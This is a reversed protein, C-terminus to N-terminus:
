RLADTTPGAKAQAAQARRAPVPCSPSRGARRASQEAVAACFADLNETSVDPAMGGGCSFIVRRCDDISAMREAVCRRVEDCTGGALVDRPPIDGLLTVSEGVLRRMDALSHKFSFNFLNIGIEALYPASVLGPADNHFAKVSVDMAQFVQKLYPLAFQEFDAKGLFGVLDDLVLIGDITPFVDRQYALWEVLFDTVLRLLKHVKEPETRVGMFFETHGVLYTAVNLPGRSCAFRIQHGEREIAARCHELRKIVLPLLGDSRCHPAGLRDIEEVGSLVREPFPFENEQWVCKAGFASPETCMGFESWFGPLFLVDPFRRVARLNAELWISESALYDLISKGAWGPLWPSDIIFGVPLPDLLEGRLIRLLDRWQKETM